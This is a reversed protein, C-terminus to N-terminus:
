DSLSKLKKQAERSYMIVESLAKKLMIVEKAQSALTNEM